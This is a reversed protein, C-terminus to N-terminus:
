ILILIYYSLPLNMIPTPSPAAERVPYSKLFDAERESGRATTSATWSGSDRRGRLRLYSREACLLIFVFGNTPPFIVDRPFRTTPPLSPPGALDRAAIGGIGRARPRSSDRLPFGFIALIKWFQALLVSYPEFGLLVHSKLFATKMM